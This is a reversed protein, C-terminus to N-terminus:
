GIVHCSPVSPSYLYLEVREKIYTSSHLPHHDVDHGLRKVGAFSRTAITYSAPQVWLGKQITCFIEDESPNSGQLV